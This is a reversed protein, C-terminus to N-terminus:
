AGVRLQPAGATPAILKFEGPCRSSFPSPHYTQPYYAPTSMADWYRVGGRIRLKSNRDGTSVQM